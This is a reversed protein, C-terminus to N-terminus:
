GRAGGWSINRYSTPQRTKTNTATWVLAYLLHVFPIYDSDMEPAVDGMAVGEFRKLQSLIQRAIHGVATDGNVFPHHSMFGDVTTDKGIM